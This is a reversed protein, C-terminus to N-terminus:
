QIKITTYSLLIEHYIKFNFRTICLCFYLPFGALKSCIGRTIKIHEKRQTRASPKVRHWPFSETWIHGRPGNRVMERTITVVPWYGWLDRGRETNVSEYSSAPIRYGTRPCQPHTQWIHQISLFLLEESFCVNWLIMFFYNLNHLRSTCCKDRNQQNGCIIIECEHM